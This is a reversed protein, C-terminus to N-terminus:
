GHLERDLYRQGRGFGRRCCQDDSHRWEFDGSTIHLEREGADGYWVAEPNRGGDSHGDPEACDHYQQALAFANSGTHRM